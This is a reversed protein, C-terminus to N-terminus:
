AERVFRKINSEAVKKPVIKLGEALNSLVELLTNKGKQTETVFYSVCEGKPTKGIKLDSSNVIDLFGPKYKTNHPIEIFKLSTKM